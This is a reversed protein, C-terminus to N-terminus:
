GISFPDNQAYRLIGAKVIGVGLDKAKPEPHCKRTMRLTAFSGLM